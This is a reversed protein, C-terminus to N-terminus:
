VNYCSMFVISRFSSPYQIQAYVAADPDDVGDDVDEYYYDYVYGDEEASTNEDVIEIEADGHGSMHDAGNTSSVRKSDAIPLSVLSSASSTITTAPAAPTPETPVKKGSARRRIPSTLSSITSSPATTQALLENYNETRENAQLRLAARKQAAEVIAIQQQYITENQALKQERRAAARSARAQMKSTSLANAIDPLFSSKSPPQGYAPGRADGNPSPSTPANGRGRGRGRGAAAASASSEFLKNLTADDVDAVGRGSGRGRGRGIGNTATSSAPKTIHEVDVINLNRASAAGGRKRSLYESRAAASQEHGRLRRDESM